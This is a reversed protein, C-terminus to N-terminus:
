VEFLLAASAGRAMNIVAASGQPQLRVFGGSYRGGFTFLGWVVDHVGAEGDGLHSLQPLGAVYRQVVWNGQALARTVAAQWEEPSAARGVHVAAGGFALGQKLVFIERERRVFEVLDVRGGEYTAEGERLVRMWPVHARVLRREDDDFLDGEVHESLAAVTRKDGLLLGVAGPYVHVSGRRVAEMVAPTREGVYEYIAHVRRGRYYLGRARLELEAYNLHFVDGRQPGSLKRLESLHRAVYEERPSFKGILQQGLRPGVIRGYESNPDSPSLTFAVNLEDEGATLGADIAQTALHRLVADVTDVHVPALSRSQFFGRLLPQQEFLPTVRSFHWGGLFGGNVELLQLGDATLMFDSRLLAREAGTPHAVAAQALDPRLGYFAGVREPDLGFLREPLSCYIRDLREAVLAMARMRAADVLVPWNKFVYENLFGREQIAAFNSARLFEPDAAARRVFDLGHASLDAHSREVDAPVHM